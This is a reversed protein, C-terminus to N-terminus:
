MAESYDGDNEIDGEDDNYDDDEDEDEYHKTKSSGEKTKKVRYNKVNRM